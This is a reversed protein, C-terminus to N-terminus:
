GEQTARVTAEDFCFLAVSAAPLHLRQQHEGERNPNECVEMPVLTGDHWRDAGDIRYITIRKMGPTMGTVNVQVDDGTQGNHALIVRVGTGSPAAAVNIDGHDSTAAVRDAGLQGLAWEVYPTADPKLAPVRPTTSGASASRDVQVTVTPDPRPM